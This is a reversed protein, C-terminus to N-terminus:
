CYKLALAYGQRQHTLQSPQDSEVLGLDTKWPCRRLQSVGRNASFLTAKGFDPKRPQNRKCFYQQKNRPGDGCNPGRRYGKSIIGFNPKVGPIYLSGSPHRHVTKWCAAFIGQDISVDIDNMVSRKVPIEDMRPIPLWTALAQLRIKCWPEGDCNCNCCYSVPRTPTSDLVSAEIALPCGRGLWTSGSIRSSDPSCLSIWRTCNTLWTQSTVGDQAGLWSQSASSLRQSNRYMRAIIVRMRKNSSWELAWQSPCLTSTVKSSSEPSDQHRRELHGDCKHFLSKAKGLM